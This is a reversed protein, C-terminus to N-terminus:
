ILDLLAPLVLQKIVSLGIVGALVVFLTLITWENLVLGLALAAAPPHETRTVVMTFMALSISIAGFIIMVAHDANASVDIWNNLTGMLSGALIGVCYGGIMHRPGSHPSRPVAFAIFTSAGLAAILVTQTVADLVLLLSLVVLGALGCQLAYRKFDGRRFHQDIDLAFKKQDAKLTDIRLKGFPL